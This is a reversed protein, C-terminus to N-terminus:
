IKYPYASANPNGELIDIPLYDHNVLQTRAARDSVGFYNAAEEIADDSLDDDLREMLADIPCLFEAAFARQWQQRITKTDAAPLWRDQQDSLLHDGLLRAFEFRRGTRHRKRLIIKANDHEDRIALGMPLRDSDFSQDFVNADALEALESLKNDNIAHGNLGIAKRAARALTQGREWPRLPNSHIPGIQRPTLAFHGKFGQGKAIYDIEDLNKLPDASACVSAVEDIVSSGIEAGLNVFREVVAPDVEDPDYGLLAELKRYNALDGDTREELVEQWLGKLNTSLQVADLRNLVLQIFGDIAVEFEEVSISGRADTLYHVPQGSNADTPISWYHMREGDCSFVLQPWLYGYGSAAVEHAMRWSSNARNGIPLPEHRLRWWSSAFWQALPYASVRTSQKVSQSWEDDNRTLSRGNIEIQLAGSTRRTEPTDHSADDWSEVTLQMSM